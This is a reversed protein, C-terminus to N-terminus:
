QNARASGTEPLLLGGIALSWALVAFLTLGPIYSGTLDRIAGVTLPGVFMGIGGITLVAALMVSVRHPSAGPLEMPLSRLVPLYFMSAFGLVVIPLYIAPTGALLFTGLGAFGVAIGPFILFPRRRRVHFALLMALPLSVVGAMSFIGMLSGAGALSIGHVEHFFTPLWALSVTYLVFPGADAV